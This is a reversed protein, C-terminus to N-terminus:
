ANVYGSIFTMVRATYKAFLTGVDITEGCRGIYSKAEDNFNGAAMLNASSFEFTSVKTSAESGFHYTIRWDPEVFMEHTLVNRLATVFEHQGHDFSLGLQIHFENEPVLNRVRRAHAKLASAASCTAFIEKIVSAVIRQFEKDKRKIKNEQNYTGFRQLNVHLDAYALRLTELASWLSTIKREVVLGPHFAIVNPFDLGLDCLRALLQQPIPVHTVEKALQDCM